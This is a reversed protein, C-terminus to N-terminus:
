AAARTASFASHLHGSSVKCQWTFYRFLTTSASCPLSFCSIWGTRPLVKRATSLIMKGWLGNKCLRPRSGGIAPRPSARSTIDGSPLRLGDARGLISRKSGRVATIVEPGSM